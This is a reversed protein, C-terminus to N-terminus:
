VINLQFYKEFADQKGVTVMYSEKKREIAIKYFLKNRIRKIKERLIKYFFNFINEYKM